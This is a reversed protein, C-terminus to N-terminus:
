AELLSEVVRIKGPIKEVIIRPEIWEHSMWLGPTDTEQYIGTQLVLASWEKYGRVLGTGEVSCSRTGLDEEGGVILMAGKDLQYVGDRGAVPVLDDVIPPKFDEFPLLCRIQFAQWATQTSQASVSSSVFLGAAVIAAIGFFGGYVNGCVQKRGLDTM